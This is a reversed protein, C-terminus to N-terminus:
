SWGTSKDYELVAELGHCQGTISNPGTGLRGINGTMLALNIIAQATRTAEHGQNVGMTWWFSVRSGRCITEAFKELQEGSLGTAEAVRDPSFPAVFAAFNEFGTTHNEIYARDISGSAILRAALGYLLTLDSKPKIAYHQTAAMATETKRPDVVIIEPRHKNRCVRQWMIPHAICPNSGVFILVDSEEFDQYTYPPADFGFSQKYATAGTAM